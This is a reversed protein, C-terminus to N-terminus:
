NVKATVPGRTGSYSTLEGDISGIVVKSSVKVPIKRDDDTMYVVIRGENKFLGGEVVMPEVVVCNFTGADTEIKEKGLVRIRLDHTKKGYFNQLTISQGKKMASLNLTRVYYMASLIDHVFPPTTFSGETTKAKKARQDIIASFDRSYNGEKVSQEFRWPFIGDIDIYTQYRDRVKFVNDFSSTTRVTFQVSYTPRDSITEPKSAIQMVAKGATIFKYNVDFNLKEGYGFAINPLYRLAGSQWTAAMDKSAEGSASMLAIM